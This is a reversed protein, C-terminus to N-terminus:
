SCLRERPICPRLMFPWTVGDLMLWDEARLMERRWCIMEPEASSPVPSWSLLVM